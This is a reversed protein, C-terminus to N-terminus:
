SKPTKYKTVWRAAEKQSIRLKGTDGTTAQIYGNRIYNYVMQPRVNVLKGLQYPSIFKLDELEQLIIDLELNM